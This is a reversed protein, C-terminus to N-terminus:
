ANFDRLRQQITTKLLAFDNETHLQISAANIDSIWATLDGLYQNIDSSRRFLKYQEPFRGSDQEKFFERWNEEESKWHSLYTRLVDPRGFNVFELAVPLITNRFLSQNWTSTRGIETLEHMCNSSRFYQPSTFVVILPAKGVDKMFEGISGGYPLSEKDRVVPFGDSKLSDLLRQILQQTEPGEPQDDKWAYSFYINRKGSVAIKPEVSFPEDPLQIPSSVQGALYTLSNCIRNYELQYDRQDLTGERKGAENRNWRASQLIFSSKDSDDLHAELLKLAEEIRGNAILNQIPNMPSNTSTQKYSPDAHRMPHGAAQDNLVLAFKAVDVWDGTSSKIRPNGVEVAEQLAQWPVFHQGDASIQVNGPQQAVELLIDLQQRAVAHVAREARVCIRQDEALEVLVSFPTEHTPDQVDFLIGHKWYTDEALKGQRCIFRAIVSKPLFDPFHLTFLHHQCRAVGKNFDKAFSGAPPNGPLYQPAVFTNPDNKTPFILEFKEMLSILAEPDLPPQGEGLEDNFQKVREQVEARTFRGEQQEMVSYDLVRYIADIIKEPNIFVVDPLEQPYYLIVGINHLYDTLTDLLSKNEGSKVESIGPRLAECFAVYGAHDLWYSRQAEKRLAQKIDLWKRSIEYTACTKRLLGHLEEEFLQFKLAQHRKKAAAEEISLAYARDASIGFTERIEDSIAEPGLEGKKDMKNEVLCIPPLSQAFYQISKLWYSFHFHELKLNEPVPHGQRYLTIETEAEGQFNTGAEFVVVNVANNSLFLRHTAHYFEQGGFDWVNIKFPQGPDPQWIENKIGHTSPIRNYTKERLYRLLSTKGATSNGLLILKVEDNPVSEDEALSRLYNRVDDWANAREDQPINEAPINTISNGHVFLHTLAPLAQYYSLPIERLENERVDLTELGELGGRFGLKELKNKRLFLYQLAPFGAPFDLETLQNDSLDLFWLQPCPGGFTLRSLHENRAADLRYLAELGAPLDLSQVRSDYLDLIRLQAPCHDFRLETLAENQSLNVYMLQPQRATFAFRTLSTQNLNLALLDPQDLALLRQIGEPDLTEAYLNLGLLRGENDIFATGGHGDRVMEQQWTMVERYSDPYVKPDNFHAHIDLLKGFTYGLAQEAALLLPPKTM